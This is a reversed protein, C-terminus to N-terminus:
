PIGVTLEVPNRASPTSALRGDYGPFRDRMRPLWSVGRVLLATSLADCEFSGPRLFERRNRSVDRTTM